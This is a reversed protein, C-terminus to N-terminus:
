PVEDWIAATRNPGFCQAVARMVAEVVVPICAPFQNHLWHIPFTTEFCRMGCFRSLRIFADDCSKSQIEIIASERQMWLVNTLVSGRVSLVCKFTRFTKIQNVLTMRLRKIKIFRVEEVAANVADVMEGFNTLRRSRKERNLAASLTAEVTYLGLKAWIHDRAAGLACPFFGAVVCPNTIHLRVISLPADGPVLFGKPTLDLLQLSDRLVAFNMHQTHLIISRAVIDPGLAWLLPINEAFLHFYVMTHYFLFFIADNIPEALRRDLQAPLRAPDEEPSYVTPFYLFSDTQVIRSGPAMYVNSLMNVFVFDNFTPLASELMSHCSDSMNYYSVRTVRRPVSLCGPSLRWHGFRPDRWDRVFAAPRTFIFKSQSISMHEEPSPAPFYLIAFVTAFFPIESFFLHGTRSGTRGM